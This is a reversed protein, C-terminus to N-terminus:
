DMAGARKWLAAFSRVFGHMLPILMEPPPAHGVAIDVVEDTTPSAAVKIMLANGDVVYRDGGPGLPTGPAADLRERLAAFEAEDFGRAITRGHIGYGIKFDVDWMGWGQQLAAALADRSDSEGILRQLQFGLALALGSFYAQRVGSKVLTYLKDETAEMKTFYGNIDYRDIVTREPAVGPQGTRIYLQTFRNGLTNRIYECLELGATDTEMVVDIFAVNLKAGVQAQLAFRSELLEIAAAKSEATYLTIPLGFVEFNKMALRSVALVDPDDDVLLVPIEKEFM